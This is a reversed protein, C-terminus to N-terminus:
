SNNPRPLGLFSYAFPGLSDALAHIDDRDMPGWGKIWRSLKSAKVDLEAAIQVFAKNYSKEQDRVYDSLWSTFGRPLREKSAWNRLGGQNNMASM